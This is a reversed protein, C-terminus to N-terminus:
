HLTSYPTCSKLSDTDAPLYFSAGQESDDRVVALVSARSASQRRADGDPGGGDGSGPNSDQCLMHKLVIANVGAKEAAAGWLSDAAAPEAKKSSGNASDQKSSSDPQAQPAPASHWAPLALGYEYSGSEAALSIVHIGCDTQFVMRLILPM